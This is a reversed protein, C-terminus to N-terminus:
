RWAELVERVSVWATVKGLRRKLTVTWGARWPHPVAFPRRQEVAAIPAKCLKKRQRKNM